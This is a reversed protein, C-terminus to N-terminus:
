IFHNIINNLGGGGHQCTHKYLNMGVEPIFAQTVIM